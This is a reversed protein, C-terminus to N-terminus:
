LADQPLYPRREVSILIVIVLKQLIDKNFAIYLDNYSEDNCTMFDFFVNLNETAKWNKGNDYM